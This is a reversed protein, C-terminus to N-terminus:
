PLNKDVRNSIMFYIFIFKMKKINNVFLEIILTGLPNKKLKADNIYEEGTSKIFAQFKESIHIFTSEVRSFLKYLQELESKKDLKFM